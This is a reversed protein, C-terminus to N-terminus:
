VLTYRSGAEIKMTGFHGIRARRGPEELAAISYVMRSMRLMHVEEEEGM